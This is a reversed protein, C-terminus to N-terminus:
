KKFPNQSPYKEYFWKKITLFNTKIKTGKETTKVVKNKLEVYEKYNEKDTDKVSEMYTDITKANTTDKIARTPKAIVKYESLDLMSSLTQNEKGLM